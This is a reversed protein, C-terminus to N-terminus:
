FHCNLPLDEDYSYKRIRASRTASFPHRKFFSIAELSVRAFISAENKRWNCQGHASLMMHRLIKSVLGGGSIHEDKCGRTKQFLSVSTPIATGLLSFTM